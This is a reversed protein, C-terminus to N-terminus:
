SRTWATKWSGNAMAAGSFPALYQNTASDSAAAMVVITYPLAGQEELVRIVNAVSSQKQGVAVYISYLPRYDKDGAEEGTQEVPRQQHDHRHLDDDQRDLPRRHDIRAPRASPIM